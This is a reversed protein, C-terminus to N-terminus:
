AASNNGGSSDSSGHKKLKYQLTGRTIKLLKAAQTQNQETQNMAETLLKKELLETWEDLGKEGLETPLSQIFAMKSSKSENAGQSFEPPLLHATALGKKPGLVALRELINQLERINGPYNYNQLAQLTDPALIAKCDTEHCAKQWFFEILLPLDEMRDRLPGLEFTLINLRFYLDERFTGLVVMKKLDRHTAAIVRADSKIQRTGGLRCFEKEQLVRLLKAQVNLSLEGVEDLFLTGGTALEFKGPKASVAGTFAGKEHGFLESEILNETLSACNIAIFPRSDRLTSEHISKAMVEKGTGSPGLILVPAHAASVKTIFEKAKKIIESIGILRHSGQVAQHQLENHAKWIRLESVRNVRLEFETIDFPKVFYDDAGHQLAMVAQDVSAYATMLIFATDPSIEKGKKILEIGTLHPMQNDTIVLDISKKELIKLAVMGDECTMVDHGANLVASLSNRIHLEDDVILIQM